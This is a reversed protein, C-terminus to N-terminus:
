KKRRNSLIALQKLQGNRNSFLGVANHALLLIPADAVNVTSIAIDPVPRLSDFIGIGAPSL